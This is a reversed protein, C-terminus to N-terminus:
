ESKHFSQLTERMAAQCASPSSSHLLAQPDEAVHDASEESCGNSSADSSKKSTTSHKLCEFAGTCFTSASCLMRCISWLPVSAHCLYERLGQRLVQAKDQGRAVVQISSWPKAKRVSAARPRFPLNQSACRTSLCIAEIQALQLLQCAPKGYKWFVQPKQTM